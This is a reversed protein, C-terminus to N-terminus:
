QLSLQKGLKAQVKGLAGKVGHGLPNVDVCKLYHKEATEADGAKDAINGLLKYIMGLVIPQNVIWQNSEIRKIVESFYPEASHGAKFQRVAWETITVSVFEDLTRSFAKPMPQQQAIAFDAYDIAEAIQEVDLLWVVFRMLPEFPYKAGSARYDDIVTKWKPLLQTKKLEAKKAVDKIDSLAKLDQELAAFIVDKQSRLHEPINNPTANAITVVGANQNAAAQLKALCREKHKVTLFTM